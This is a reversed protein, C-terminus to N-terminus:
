KVESLYNLLSIRSTGYKRDAINTWVLSEPYDILHDCNKCYEIDNFNKEIHNKRSSALVYVQIPLFMM